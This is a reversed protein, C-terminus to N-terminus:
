FFINRRAPISYSGISFQQAVVWTQLQYGVLWTRRAQGLDNTDQRAGVAVIPGHTENFSQAPGTVFNL